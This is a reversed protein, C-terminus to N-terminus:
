RQASGRGALRAQIQQAHQLHADLAPEVGVLMAKLEANTASPILQTRLLDIFAQHHAVEHDVYATDLEAGSRKELQERAQKGSATLNRSTDSEAPTLKLKTVLDTVTKSVATHDAVMREALKKVDPHKAKQQALQGADIDVQNAAVVIAAIQADSLTPKAPEPTPAPPPQTPPAPAATSASGSGALPQPAEKKKCGASALAAAALVHILRIPMTSISLVVPDPTVVAHRATM